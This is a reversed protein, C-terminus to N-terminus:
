LSGQIADVIRQHNLGALRKALREAREGTFRKLFGAKLRAIRHYSQEVRARVTANKECESYLFEFAHIARSLDHGFLLVDIGARVCLAVAQEQRYNDSIARMEMDDSFIVGDYALKERLLGTVIKRSLTAPLKPDLARYLVHATMLSEIQSRCAGVFPPLEVKELEALPRDVVPLAFHSDKDTNGHGPFHKGCPVIGGDRLGRVWREGLATVKQPDAAFARDGIVPNQPNSNVDLVPAFDLNIGALALEEATARAARYALNFDCTRGLRAAAPLHMFPKPLRHVRGGEQDIAIFPPHGTAAQWLTRTFCVIQAPESCNHHFLIFGGFPYREFLSKEEGALAEGRVGVIFMQGVKEQLTTM